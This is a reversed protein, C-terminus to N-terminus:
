YAMRGLGIQKKQKRSEIHDLAIKEKNEIESDADTAAAARRAATAARRQEREESVM